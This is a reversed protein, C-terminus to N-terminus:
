IWYWDSVLRFNANFGSLDGQIYNTIVHSRKHVYSFNSVDKLLIPYAICTGLYDLNLSRTYISV